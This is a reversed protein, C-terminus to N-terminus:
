VASLATSTSIPLSVYNPIPMPTSGGEASVETADRHLERLEEITSKEFVPDVLPEFKESKFNFRSRTKRSKWRFRRGDKKVSPCVSTPKAVSTQRVADEPITDRAQSMLAPLSDGVSGSTPLAPILSSGDDRGSNPPYRFRIRTVAPVVACCRPAMPLDYMSLCAIPSSGALATRAHKRGGRREPPPSLASFGWSAVRTIM